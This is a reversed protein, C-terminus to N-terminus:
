SVPHVRSGLIGCSADFEARQASDPNRGFWLGLIRLTGESELDLFGVIGREQCEILTAPTEQIRDPM